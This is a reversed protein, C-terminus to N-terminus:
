NRGLIRRYLAVYQKVINEWLYHGRVYAQLCEGMATLQQPSQTTMKLLGEHLGEISAPVVFGGGVQEVENFGCQDTLLVPTGNIGAELAVISMAEQRSPVALMAASRYADTKIQGGLYGVFHVRDMLASDQATKQMEALMGGDPGAFVLQMEGLRDRINCFARLLLDPGKIMNLRGMFLIFPANGLAFKRRFNSSDCPGCRSEVNEIGNPIVSVQEPLIGYARFHEREESTVAIHGSANRIMASGIVNNYLKKILRSRGYMPLAGAPCVVYPKHFRCAARYVLANILTWHNMLHIIDAHAVLERISAYGAAPIYFRKSLVPLAVIHVNEMAQRREPTMGPDTTLVTCAMGARALYRSMQFTREATGAGIVPDLSMNVNLIRM